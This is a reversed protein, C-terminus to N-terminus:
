SGATSDFLNLALRILANVQRTLAAVQAVAQANTPSAIGLYFLNNALAANAKSQLSAQNRISLPLPPYTYGAALADSELMLTLGAAPTVTSGGDWLLPGQKIVKDTADTSVLVYRAVM